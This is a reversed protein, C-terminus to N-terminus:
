DLLSLVTRPYSYAMDPLKPGFELCLVEVKITQIFLWMYEMIVSKYGVRVLGCPQDCELVLNKEALNQFCLSWDLSYCSERILGVFCFFLM